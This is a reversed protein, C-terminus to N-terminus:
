RQVEVLENLMVKGEHVYSAASALLMARAQDDLQRVVKGPSGVVLSGDPIVSGAKVLTNAGIICDNGVKAGDLIVANIGILTRDGVEACHIMANHGVTVDEGITLPQGPDCHLVAGDQINSRAGVEIHDCDGRIVANFWVSSHEKLTVQGIVDASQAVFVTSDISPARDGIRYIM